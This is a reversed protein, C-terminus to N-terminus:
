IFAIRIFVTIGNIGGFIMEGDGRQYSANESFTTSSLGDRVDFNRFNDLRANYKTIGKNTSMWINNGADALLAHVYDNPFGSGEYFTKIQINGNTTFNLKNLGQQTGVWINGLGDEVMSLITNNSLKDSTYQSLLEFNDKARNYLQLGNYTGIWLRNSKDVLMCSIRNNQIAGSVGINEPYQKFVPMNDKYGTVRNLGSEQTGVWITGSKDKVICTIKPGSLSLSDGKRYEVTLPTVNFDHNRYILIVDGTGVWLDNNVEFFSNVRSNKDTSGNQTFNKRDKSFLLGGGKTGLWLGGSKDEFVATIHNNSLIPKDNVSNTIASFKKGYPDIKCIGGGDTGVWLIGANDQTISLIIDYDRNYVNVPKIRFDEFKETQPNFKRLGGGWTGIWITQSRDIFVRYTNNFAVTPEVFKKFTKSKINYRILGKAWTGLYLNESQKDIAISTLTYKEDDATLAELKKTAPNYQYLGKNTGVWIMGKNDQALAFVTITNDIVSIKKNQLFFFGHLAGIYLDGKPNVLLSKIEQIKITATSPYHTISDTLIDYSNLGGVKNGIWLTNKYETIVEVAQNTLNNTSGPNSRLTSFDYGNYRNLGGRTGFWMFGYTDQYIATVENNVLGDNITINQHNSIQANITNAPYFAFAAICTIWFNKLKGSLSM